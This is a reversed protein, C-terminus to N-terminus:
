ERYNRVKDLWFALFILRDFLNHKDRTIYYWLHLDSVSDENYHNGNRTTIYAGYYPEQLKKNGANEVIRDPNLIMELIQDANLTFDLANVNSDKVSPASCNFRGPFGVIHTYKHPFSEWSPIIYHHPLFSPATSGATFVNM